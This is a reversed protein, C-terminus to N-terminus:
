PEAPVPASTSALRKPTPGIHFHGSHLNSSNKRLEQATPSGAMTTSTGALEGHAASFPFSGLAPM